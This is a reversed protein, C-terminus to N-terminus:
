SRDRSPTPRGPRVCAGDHQVLPGDTWGDVTVNEAEPNACASDARHTVRSTFPSTSTGTRELEEREGETMGFRPEHPRRGRASQEERVAAALDALDRDSMDALRDREGEPIRAAPAMTARTIGGGSSKPPAAKAPTKSDDDAM